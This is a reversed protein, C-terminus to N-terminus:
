PILKTMLTRSDELRLRLVFIGRSPFGFWNIKVLQDNVMQDKLKRGNLDFVEIRRMTDMHNTKVLLTEEVHQWIIKSPEEAIENM